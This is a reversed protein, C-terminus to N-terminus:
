GAPHSGTLPGPGGPPPRPGAAEGRQEAAPGISAPQYLGDGMAQVATAVVPEGVDELVAPGATSWALARRSPAPSGASARAPVCGRLSRDLPSDAWLSTALFERAAGRSAALRAPGRRRAGRLPGPSHGRPGPPPSTTSSAARPSGRGPRRRRRPDRRTGGGHARPARPPWSSTAPKPNAPM